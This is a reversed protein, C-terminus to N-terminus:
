FRIPIESKIINDFRYGNEKLFKWMTNESMEANVLPGITIGTMTNKDFQLIDNKFFPAIIM